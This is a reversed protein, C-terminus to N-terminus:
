LCLSRNRALQSLAKSPLRNIWIAQDVSFGLPTPGLGQMSRNM